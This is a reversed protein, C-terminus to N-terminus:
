EGLVVSVVSMTLIIHLTVATNLIYNNYNVFFQLMELPHKKTKVIRINCNM